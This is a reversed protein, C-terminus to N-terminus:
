ALAKEFDQITLDNMYKELSSWRTHGSFIKLKFPDYEFIRYWNKLGMDRFYHNFMGSVGKVVQHGRQRTFTFVPTDDSKPILELYDMIARTFPALTGRRPLPIEVRKSYDSPNLIPYHRGSKEYNKHKIIPLGRVKIFDTDEIFQGVKLPELIGVAVPGGLIETVRSCTLYELAM